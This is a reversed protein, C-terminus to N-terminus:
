ELHCSKPCRTGTKMGDAGERTEDSWGIETEELVGHVDWELCEDGAWSEEQSDEAAVRALLCLLLSHM